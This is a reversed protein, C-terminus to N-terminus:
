VVSYMTLTVVGPSSQQKVSAETGSDEYVTGCMGLLEGQKWGCIPVMCLKFRHMVVIIHGLRRGDVSVAVTSCPDGHHWGRGEGARVGDSTHLVCGGPDM